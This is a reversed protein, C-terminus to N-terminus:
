APPSCQHGRYRTVQEAHQQQHDTQGRQGTVNQLLAVGLTHQQVRGGGALRRHICRGPADAGNEAERGLSQQGPQQQQEQLQEIRKRAEEPADGLEVTPSHPLPTTARGKAADGGGALQAQAIAQAVTPAESSKANVLIVELPTDQFVRNFGEPDVFRVGLLVAHVGVSFLLALQLTSFKRPLRFRM